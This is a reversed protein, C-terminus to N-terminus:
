ETWREGFTVRWQKGYKRARVGDIIAETGGDPARRSHRGFQKRLADPKKALRAAAEALTYLQPLTRQILPTRRALTAKAM